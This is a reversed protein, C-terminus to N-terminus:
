RHGFDREERDPTSFQIWNRPGDVRSLRVRTAGLVFAGTSREWVPALISLPNAGRGSAFRGYHTHGDGIAMSVVGPIAGPHIYAPAEISGHRSQARVLDGNAIQLKAATAPDIEIPLGWIGSSAPDPLEQLWPLNSGRGDHFQLSLYPQFLMPYSASDGDFTAVAFDLTQSTIHADANDWAEVWAGGELAAEEFAADAALFPQVVENVTVARYTLNMRRALDSWLIEPSRTDYLPEVFPIGITVAPKPSVAPVLAVESELAHHIPLLIDAWASSDDLFGSLSIVMEARSLSDLVGSSRPLTYAPNVDDLILVRARSLVEDARHDVFGSTQGAPPALVGGEKGINGLMLNVCHSAMVAQLSNTQVVSAGALVLPAESEGLARVLERVRSEPLGCSALLLTPDVSQFARLVPPPLHDRNRALRLDLLMGGVAALFQPESGPLLPLWQDAAAATISLRSEAQVLMGRVERRGQRFMGFQRSYYVPSAWGGLFDAGVGLVSHANALDYTPLGKWGFVMEAARREVAFDALSCMIPRPAGLAEMFRQLALSRSGVIPRTLAVIDGADAACVKAMVDSVMPLADEWSIAAFLAEGRDGNRKMPGRLRDPHYLSQVVAQGRACLRGGSIPDLPNGEVKKVAAIRQRVKEGNREVTRVAEMVRVLMGCGAGCEMCAAPHWQEEGTVIEHEPVLLPILKETNKGCGGTLIGASTASLIRFFGRRDM